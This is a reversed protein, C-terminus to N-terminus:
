GRMLMRRSFLDDPVPTKVDLESLHIVTVDGTKENKMKIKTPIQGGEFATWDERTQTRVHNGSGDFYKIRTIAGVKSDIFIQLKSFSSTVGQKPKLVLETEDGTKGILEADFSPSLKALVMDEPTFESGLFGQNQMHAAVRRVKQFDPSYIYITDRDEMLIKMGAVDGPATFTIFQKELGKMSMKFVLTKRAEDKGEEQGGKFIKMTAVYTQDPYKAAREDSIKLIAAGKSFADEAATATQPEVLMTAPLALITALLVHVSKM